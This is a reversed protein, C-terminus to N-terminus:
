PKTTKAKLSTKWRLKALLPTALMSGEGCVSESAALASNSSIIIESQRQWERMATMKEFDHEQKPRIAAM